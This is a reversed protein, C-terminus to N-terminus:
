RSVLLVGFTGQKIPPRKAGQPTISEFDAIPLFINQTNFDIAMTRAYKKTPVNEVVSYHDPSDEHIVTLSGSGGNSSFAFQTNPDFGAADPDDGIAPTAVVKGSDANVVAMINNDCVAFLRRSQKDMALGSPEKCPSLPWRNIVIRKQADIEVLESKDAINVFVHGDGDGATFEPKGGVEFRAAVEGTEAEIATANNTRGNFAFVQKTAADYFIADPNEGGTEVTRVLALSKLDFVTVTNAHGNSTFGLGLAPALAIGHVGQTNPIDGVLAGTDADLVVVHTFHSVYVRRAASDVICYDWLGEGGIPITKVLHYESAGPSKPAVRSSLTSVSLFGFVLAIGAVLGASKIRM